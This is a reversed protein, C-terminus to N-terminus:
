PPTESSAARDERVKLRAWIFADIDKRTDTLMKLLPAIAAVTTAHRVGSYRRVSVDVGVAKLAKALSQSNREDVTTDDTGHILLSAPSSATVFEVPQSTSRTAEPFVETLYGDQLPLFDYPGSLGIFGAVRHQMWGYQEAYRKDFALLAAIHAGASHGMVFVQEVTSECLQDQGLVWQMALAGDNVFAPFIVEPYLRYDPIVVAHGAETLGSAVFEYKAKSGDKWGGGYFFVILAGREVQAKPCYIDLEQRDADGYKIDKIASYNSNPSAFNLLQTPTCAATLSLM